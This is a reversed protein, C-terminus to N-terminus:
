EYDKMMKIKKDFHDRTTILDELSLDGENGLLRNGAFSIIRVNGEVYGLEPNLKDFSPAKNGGGSRRPGSYDYDIEWGTVECTKPFKLKYFDEYDGNPYGKKRAVNRRVCYNQRLRSWAKYNEEKLQQSTRM